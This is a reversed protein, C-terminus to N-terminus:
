KIREFKFDGAAFTYSKVSGTKDFSRSLFVKKGTTKELIDAGVSAVTLPDITLEETNLPKEKELLNDKGREIIKKKMFNGITLFDEARSAEKGAVIEVPILDGSISKSNLAVNNEISAIPKIPLSNINVRSPMVEALIVTTANNLKSPATFHKKPSKENVKLAINKQPHAEEIVKVKEKVQNTEIAKNNTQAIELKDINSNSNRYILFVLSALLLLAAAAAFRKNLYFVIAEKRKLASKDPYNITLDPALKTLQFTNKLKILSQNGEIMENIIVNEKVSTEGELQAIMLDNFSKEALSQHANLKKLNSKFDSGISINETEPLTGLAEFENKIEPHQELFLLVEAVELANLNGDFYDILVSEYNNIDIEM